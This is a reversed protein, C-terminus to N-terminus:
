VISNDLKLKGYFYITSILVFLKPLAIKAYVLSILLRIQKCRVRINSLSVISQIM